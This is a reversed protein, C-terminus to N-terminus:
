DSGKGGIISYVITEEADKEKKATVFYVFHRAEPYEARKRNAIVTLAQRIVEDPVESGFGGCGAGHASWGMLRVQKTYYCYDPTTRQCEMKPTGGADAHIWFDLSSQLGADQKFREQLTRHFRRDACLQLFGLSNVEETYPLKEVGWNEENLGNSQQEAISDPNTAQSSSQDNM